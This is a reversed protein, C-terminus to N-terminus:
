SDALSYTAPYCNRHHSTANTSHASQFYTKHMGFIVSKQHISHANSKSPRCNFSDHNSQSQFKNRIKVPPHLCNQVPSSTNRYRSNRKVPIQKSKPNGRFGRKTKNPNTNTKEGGSSSFILLFDHSRSGPEPLYIMSLASIQRPLSLWFM